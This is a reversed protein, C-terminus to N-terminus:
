IGIIQIKDRGNKRIVIHIDCNILKQNLKILKVLYELIDQESKKTDAAGAGILPLYVTNGQSRINIYLILRILSTIYDEDSVHAHLNKDFETLGLLFFTEGQMGKIEAIAGADFRKLNGKRKEESTLLTYQYGNKQLSEIIEDNLKNINFLNNSILYNVLTGHLTNNSILDDDVITDFCRNVPIVINRCNDKKSDKFIDGYQVFLSHGNGFNLVEYRKKWWLYLFGFVLLFSWIAFFLLTAVLIKTYLKTSEKFVESFPIFLGVFGLAAFIFETHKLAEKVSLKCTNKLQNKNNIM